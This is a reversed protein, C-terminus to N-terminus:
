SSRRGGNKKSEEIEVTQKMDRQFAAMAEKQLESYASLPLLDIIEPTLPDPEYGPEDFARRKEHWRSLICLLERSGAIANEGALLEGFKRVDGDPCLRAIEEEAGVCLLFGYEKGFVQM